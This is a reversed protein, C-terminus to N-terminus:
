ALDVPTIKRFLLPPVHLRRGPEIALLTADGNWKEDLCGLVVEAATPIFPWAALAAARVLHVGTRVIVAARAPEHKIASWPAAEALYANGLRWIARVEEAAKRFNLAEHHRRLDRLHRDLAHLALHEAPGTEGGAPVVSNFRAAIFALCRNVLNGFTNALDKNVGAVFRDVTFDVDAGEPANAALWWRWCDAPLKDLAADTFLGRGQSTSFKGGEYTLWNFGKIVDALKLPLGSGIITAPFSIAHFPVNDKALFQLYRVDEGGEWWTRWNRGPVAEAWEVWCIFSLFFASDASQGLSHLGSEPGVVSWLIFLWDLLWRWM